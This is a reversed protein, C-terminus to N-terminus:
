ATSPLDSALKGVNLSRKTLEIRLLSNNIEVIRGSFHATIPRLDARGVPWPLFFNLILGLSAWEKASHRRSTIRLLVERSNMGVTRGKVCILGNKRIPSIEVAQRFPYYILPYFCARDRRKM